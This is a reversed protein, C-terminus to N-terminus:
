RPTPERPDLHGRTEVFRAFMFSPLFFVNQGPTSPRQPPPADLLQCPFVSLFVCWKSSSFFVGSSVSYAFLTPNPYRPPTLFPRPTLFFKDSARHVLSQFLFLSLLPLGGHARFVSFCLLVFLSFFASFFYRSLHSCQTFSNDRVTTWTFILCM